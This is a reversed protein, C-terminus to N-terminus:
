CRHPDTYVFRDHIDLLQSAVTTRILLPIALLWAVLGRSRSSMSRSMKLLRLLVMVIVLSLISLLMVPHMALPEGM